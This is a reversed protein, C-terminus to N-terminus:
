SSRPIINRVRSLSLARMDQCPSSSESSPLLQECSCLQLARLAARLSGSRASEYMIVALIYTVTM